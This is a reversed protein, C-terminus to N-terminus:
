EVTDAQHISLAPDNRPILRTLPDRAQASGLHQILENPIDLILQQGISLRRRVIFTYLM